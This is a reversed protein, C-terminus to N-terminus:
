NYMAKEKGLKVHSPLLVPDLALPVELIYEWSEESGLPEASAIGSPAPTSDRNEQLHTMMKAADTSRTQGCSM